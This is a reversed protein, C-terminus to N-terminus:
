FEVKGDNNSDCESLIDKWFEDDIDGIINELESKDIQGDGDKIYVIIIVDDFLKFAM